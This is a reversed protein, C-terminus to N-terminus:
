SANPNWIMNKSHKSTPRFGLKRYFRMLASQSVVGKDWPFLTLTIGDEQAQQMLEKMAISGTGKRLPYAQFWKIEVANKASKSPVLEFMAFTQDEGDGYVIARQRNNLPNVPYKQYIKDIWQIPTINEETLENFRV